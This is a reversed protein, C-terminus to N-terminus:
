TAVVVRDRGDRKARYLAADAAHLADMGSAGHAPFASVGISITMGKFIQGRYEIEVSRTEKRLTEARAAAFALPMDPLILAFEEGGYRCAIDESRIHTRLFQGLARLAADGAEHGNADNFKKFHDLDLMMISIPQHMRTAKHSERELSEEMYRRNFLGTLPDRIAEERLFERLRLNTLTLELQAVVNRALQYKTEPLDGPAFAALHLLGLIEDQTALPICVYSSPPPFPLHQCLLAHASEAVAHSRGHRLAWCDTAPISTPMEEFEEGWHAFWELMTRSSNLMGVAGANNPFLRPAFSAIAYEVEELTFCAQLAEGLQNLERAQENQKQLMEVWHQLQVNNASMWEQARVRETIDRYNGVIAHVSPDDLLNKIVGEVWLWAGNQHLLRLELNIPQTPLALARLFAEQGCPLDDPHVVELMNRGIFDQAAYGLVRTTSPTTYLIVGEKSVLTVVDFTNEILARFHAASQRLADEAREREAIEVQLRQNSAALESTRESVHEELETQLAAHDIANATEQALLMLLELDDPILFPSHNLWVLLLEIPRKTPVLPVVIVGNADREQALATLEASMEARGRAIVPARTRWVHELIGSEIGFSLNEDPLQFQRAAENWRALEAARAGTARIATQTILMRATKAREVPSDNTLQRLFFDLERQQWFQRLLRPPTFGLYYSVPILCLLLVAPPTLLMELELSPTTVYIGAVGILLALFLSGAAALFSRSGTEGRTRQATKVLVYSAFANVTVFYSVAFAIMWPPRPPFTFVLMAGTLFFGVLALWQSLPSTPQIQQVLVLLLCPEAAAALSGLLLLWHPIGQNSNTLVFVILAVSLLLLTVLAHHRDRHRALDIGSLVVLVLFALQVIYLSILQMMFGRAPM